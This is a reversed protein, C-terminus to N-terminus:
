ITFHLSLKKTNGEKQSESLPPLKNKNEENAGSGSSVLDEEVENFDPIKALIRITKIKDISSNAIAKIIPAGSKIVM